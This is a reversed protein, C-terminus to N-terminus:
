GLFCIPLLYNAVPRRTAARYSSDPTKPALFHCGAVVVVCKPFRIGPVPFDVVTRIHAKLDLREGNDNM